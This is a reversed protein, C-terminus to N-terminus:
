YSGIDTRAAVLHLEELTVEGGGKAGPGPGSLV